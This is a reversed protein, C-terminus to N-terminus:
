AQGRRGNGRRAGAVGTALGVSGGWDLDEVQGGGAPLGGLDSLRPEVVGPGGRARVGATPRPSLRRRNARGAGHAVGDSLRRIRGVYPAGQDQWYGSVWLRVGSKQGIRELDVAEEHGAEGPGTARVEGLAHADVQAHPLVAGPRGPVEVLRGIGTTVVAGGGARPLEDGTPGVRDLGGDDATGQGDPELQGEHGGPRLPLPNEVGVLELGGLGCRGGDDLVGDCLGLGAPGPRQLTGRLQGALRHRRHRRPQDCGRAERRRLRGGPRRASHWGSQRDRRTGVAQRHRDSRSGLPAGVGGVHAPVGVVRAGAVDDDVVGGTGVVVGGSLGGGDHPADVVIVRDGQVPAVDAVVEEDVLVAGDEFSAGARHSRGGAPHADPRM